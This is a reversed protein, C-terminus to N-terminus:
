AQYAIAENGTMGYSQWVFVMYLARDIICFEAHDSNQLVIVATLVFRM